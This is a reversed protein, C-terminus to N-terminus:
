CFTKKIDQQTIRRPTNVIDLDIGNIQEPTYNLVWNGKSFLVLNDAGVEQLVTDQLDTRDLLTVTYLMGLGRALSCYINDHLLQWPDPWTKRDDWHLYFNSWPANFWWSNIHHLCEPAPLDQVKTRLDTWQSLRAHFTKPWM